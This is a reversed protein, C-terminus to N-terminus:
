RERATQTTAAAPSGDEGGARRRLIRDVVYRNMCGSAVLEVGRKAMRELLQEGAADIYSVDPLRAVIRVSPITEVISRWSQELVEVWEGALRGHLSITYCDGRRETVIRLM